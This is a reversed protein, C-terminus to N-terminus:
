GQQTCARNGSIQLPNLAGKSVGVAVYTPLVLRAGLSSINFAFPGGTKMLRAARQACLLAARANINM